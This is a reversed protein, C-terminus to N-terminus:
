NDIIKNINSQYESINKPKLIEELGSIDTPVESFYTKDVSEISFVNRINALQATYNSMIQDFLLLYAKLQKM